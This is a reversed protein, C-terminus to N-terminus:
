QNQLILLKKILVLDFVNIRGDKCLDAAESNTLDGANLLYKQLMVVDLVSATGDANVDGAIIEPEPEPEPETAAEMAFVTYNVCGSIQGNEGLIVTEGAKVDKAYLKFVVNKSNVATLETETYDALWAPANTVRSDLAAYVIMDAGAEFAALEGTSNKSDCATLIVEASTLVEPIQTYTVDRDGFVLDGTELSNDFSWGSIYTMDSVRLNTILKGDTNLQVEPIWKQNDSGDLAWQIVNAGEKTSGGDIGVGSKDRTAKTVIAYTGDENAVFKFSQADSQTDGWIGINTGNDPKGYDLDLLFTKGDGVESYVKYYGNGADLLTWKKAGTTGQQVNAGNEAASDAVELYLGSGANRFMYTYATDFAAGPKGEMVDISKKFPCEYKTSVFGALDSDTIFKLDGSKIRGSYKLCFDKTDTGKTNYADILSYGYNTENPYWKSTNSCKFNIAQPTSSSKEAYYSNDDRYPQNGGGGIICDGKALSQFRCNQSIINCGDGGIIQDTSQDNGNDNGTYYNNYIHANGNGLQPCRRVCEDWWNYMLTTRDRTIESNQTGYAVTWFRNRFQCYSITIYDISRLRDKADMYSEYPTNLWIFKGVEDRDRSLESNFTCHDIWIQRSSWIQVLIRGRENKALFDINQIVINDSPEDGVTGYFDNTRLECDILKGSGYAGVITKNDRIRNRSYSRMDITNNVVITLPDKSDMYGILEDASSATVTKGFLGGITCAKEGSETTCNAAFGECGTLNIKYKQFAEGSYSSLYFSNTDTSFTLAQSADANSVIKYYLYYGDYDKEVGEIKWRQNAGDTDNSLAIDSGNSTLIQGNATSVIECVGGEIYNLTWNEASTGNQVASKVSSDEANVNRNTDSIGMQFRQLPYSAAAEATTETLMHMVGAACTVVTVASLLLSIGKKLFM